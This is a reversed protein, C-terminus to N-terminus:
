NPGMTMVVKGCAGQGMLEMGSRFDDIPITHTIVPSVDLRGSALLANMTSWTQYLRRGVVCHITLGKFIMSESVDLEVSRSPIGFLTVTGGPRVIEMASQIASPAGSMELVVDVGAGRTLERVGQKVDSDAANLTTDAGMKRALDLRYERTDTAIIPGAGTVRAVGIAFLGVPGCGLIATAQGATESSLVAHVANGLPDQICAVQPSIGPANRWLSAEPIVVYPAFCGDADVGFIRTNACVHQQGTRCQLCTGCVWHSEGTVCDGVRIARVDSGVELVTGAFEHGIVRPPVVRRAAWANWEYIHHDTGCISVADVRVLVDTASRICPEPVHIFEAGPGAQTKAIARM